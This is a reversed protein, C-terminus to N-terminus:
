GGEVDWIWNKKKRERKRRHRFKPFRSLFDPTLVGGIEEKEEEQSIFHKSERLRLHNKEGFLSIEKDGEACFHSLTTKAMLKFSSSPKKEQENQPFGRLHTDGGFILPGFVPLHSNLQHITLNAGIHSFEQRQSSSTDNCM